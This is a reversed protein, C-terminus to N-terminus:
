SRNQTSQGDSMTPLKAHLKIRPRALHLSRWTQALDFFRDGGHPKMSM